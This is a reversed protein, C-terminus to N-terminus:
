ATDGRRRHDAYIGQVWRLSPRASWRELTDELRPPMTVQRYLPCAAPRALPALLSAATIDARGFRGGVLYRRGDIERDFWDLEAALEQELEPVLSPRANMGAIMLRRTVPWSLRGLLAQVGPVGALLVDRVKSRPESLTGAYIYQRILAGIRGEFRQELPPDGGPVRTWDLIASSGQVVEQGVALIPLTTRQAIRRALPVHLGVVWPTERYAVDMHDLAWRARECYHSPPLVFLRPQDNM